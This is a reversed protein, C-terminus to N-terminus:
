DVSALADIQVHAAPVPGPSQIAVFEIAPLSHGQLFAARIEEYIWIDKVTRVYVTTKALQELTLGAKACVRELLRWVAWCQAAFGRNSEYRALDSVVRRGIEDDLEDTGTVLQGAENLGLMGAFFCLPGTRVAAPGAFPEREPWAISETIFDDTRKVATLEIELLTGRHGVENFGTVSLAPSADPYWHRHVRHLTGFDRIDQLFVNMHVVDQMALGQAALNGRIQEYVYWAQAALPGERSDPHSRGTALFRGETPVDDFGRVVPKGPEHTKIPIHGALFVLPGCAVAQSYYSASPLSKNDFTQVTARGTLLPHEGPVAALADYGLWRSFRGAVEAVGLGSSPAPVTEWHMRMKEHVPFFRKDRQWTHRRLIQSVDTGAARLVRDLNAHVFWSDVAVEGETSHAIDFDRWNARLAEPIEAMGRNTDYFGGRVGSVFAIGNSVIAAPYGRVVPTVDAVDIRRRAMPTEAQTGCETCKVPVTKNLVADTASLTPTCLM